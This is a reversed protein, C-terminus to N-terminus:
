QLLLASINLFINLILTAIAMITIYTFYYKQLKLRLILMSYLKPYKVMLNFKEIVYNGYKGILFSFLLSILFSSCLINFILSQTFLDFSSFYDVTNNFLDKISSFSFDNILKKTSELSKIITETDNKVQSVEEKVASINDNLTEQGEKLEQLEEKLEQNEKRLAEAQKRSKLAHSYALGSTAVGLATVGHNIRPIKM